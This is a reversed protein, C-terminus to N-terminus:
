IVNTKLREVVSERETRWFLLRPAATCIVFLLLICVATEAAPYRFVFYVIKEDMVVGFAYLAGIGATLLLVTVILSYFVGELLLMRKLQRRTMGISEM